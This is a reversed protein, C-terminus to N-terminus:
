LMRFAGKRPRCAQETTPDQFFICHRHKDPVFGALCQSAAGEHLTRWVYRDIRSKMIQIVQTMTVPDMGKLAKPNWQLEPPLVETNNVLKLLDDPTTRAPRTVFSAAPVKVLRGQIAEKLQKNVDTRRTLAKPKKKLGLYSEDMFQKLKLLAEVVYTAGTTTLDNLNLPLTRAQQFFPFDMDLWIYAARPCQCSRDDARYGFAHLAQPREATAVLAFPM